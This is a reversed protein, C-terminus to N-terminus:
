KESQKEVGGPDVVEVVSEKFIPELLEGAFYCTWITTVSFYTVLLQIFLIAYNFLVLIQLIYAQYWLSILDFTNLFSVLAHISNYIFLTM